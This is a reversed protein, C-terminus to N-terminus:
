YVIMKCMLLVKDPTRKLKCYFRTIIYTDIVEGESKNKM